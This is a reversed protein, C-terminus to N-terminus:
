CSNAGVSTYDQKPDQYPTIFSFLKPPQEYTQEYTRKGQLYELYNDFERKKYMHKVRLNSKTRLRCEMLDDYQDKCATIGQQVGYYEMCEMAQLEFNQCKFGAGNLSGGMDTFFSRVYVPMMNVKMADALTWAPSLNPYRVPNHAENWGHGRPMDPFFQNGSYSGDMKAPETDRYWFPPDPM